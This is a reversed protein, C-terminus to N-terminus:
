IYVTSELLISDLRVNIWISQRFNYIFTDNVSQSEHGDFVFLGVDLAIFCHGSMPRPLNPGLIYLIM